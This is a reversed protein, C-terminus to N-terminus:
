LYYKTGPKIVEPHAVHFLWSDLEIDSNLYQEKIKELFVKIMINYKTETNYESEDIIHKLTIAPSWNTKCTYSACCFCDIGRIYKLINLFKNPCGLFLGYLKNNIYVTPPLYPYNNTIIFKYVIKKNNTDTKEVVFIVTSEEKSVIINHYKNDNNISIMKYFEGKIRKKLTIPKISDLVDIM